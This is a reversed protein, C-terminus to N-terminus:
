IVCSFVRAPSCAATNATEGTVNTRGEFNALIVLTINAHHHDALQPVIRISPKSTERDSHEPLVM